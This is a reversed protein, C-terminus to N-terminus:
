ANSGADARELLAITKEKLIDINFRTVSSICVKEGPFPAELFDRKRDASIDYKSGAAIRPKTILDASYKAMEGVLMDHQEVYDAGSMDLLLILARTREIHKLFRIGLGVGRSAGEILGPMDAVVYQARGKFEMIGLNPSLTTFPYAGIKPRAKTLTALLTSKGANPLGVIGIDAITKIQLTVFLAKGPSGEQAFKPARNTSTAFHSNGRGGRGGALLVAKENEALDALLRGSHRDIVVTGEPVAIICDTGKKGKMNRRAGAHGNEARYSRKIRHDYLSKIGHQALFIVDGGDGGDGGDPGGKPVYKERRFSVAGRGGDGSRITIDAEDVFRSM